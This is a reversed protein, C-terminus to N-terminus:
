PVAASWVSTSGFELGDCFIGTNLSCNFSRNVALYVALQTTGNPAVTMTYQWGATFDGPGFPVGSDDFNTVAADSLVGGVDTAGFPRVLYHMAVGAQRRGNYQAFSSGTDNLQLIGHPTWEVLRTTDNTGTPQLDFDAMNFIELTLPNVASLNQIELWVWVRGSELGGYPASIGADEHAAFLGRGGVNYWNLTSRDDIYSQDDPPPFATEQSDGAVRFWWGFEYLHDDTLPLSVGRLDATPSEDWSSATRVFQVNGLSITGQALIPLATVLTLVAFGWCRVPIQM